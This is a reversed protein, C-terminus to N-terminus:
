TWELIEEGSAGKEVWVASGPCSDTFFWTGAGGMDVDADSNPFANTFLEIQDEISRTLFFGNKGIEVKRRAHAKGDFQSFEEQSEHLMIKQPWIFDVTRRVGTQQQSGPSLQCNIM